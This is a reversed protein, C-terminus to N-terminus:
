ILSNEQESNEEKARLPIFNGSYEVRDIKYSTLSANCYGDKDITLFIDFTNQENKVKIRIKFLGKSSNDKLEFAVTKGKMDIGAIPRYSYQRGIYATSIIIKDGDLIIYNNNPKLDIMGGHLIYLKNFKLLFRRMEVAQRITEQQVLSKYNKSEPKSSEEVRSTACSTLIILGAVIFIMNKMASQKITFSEFIM